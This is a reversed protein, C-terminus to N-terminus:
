IMHFCLFAFWFVSARPNSAGYLLCTYHSKKDFEPGTITNLASSCIHSCQGPPVSLWQGYYDFLLTIIVTPSEAM